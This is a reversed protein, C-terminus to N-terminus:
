GVVSGVPVSPRAWAHASSKGVYAGVGAGKGSGVNWGVIVGTGVTSEATRTSTVSSKATGFAGVAPSEAVIFVETALKRPTASGGHPTPDQGIGDTAPEKSSALVDGPALVLVLHVLWVDAM